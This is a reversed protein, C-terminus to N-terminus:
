KGFAEMFEQSQPTVKSAFFQTLEGKENILYKCFNWSPEQNNWGNLTPDTLWKYVPSIDSGKVDVKEFM